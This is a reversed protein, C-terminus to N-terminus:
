DLTLLREAVDDGDVTILARWSPWSAAVGVTATPFRVTIEDDDLDADPDLDQRRGSARDLVYQAASAAGDELQYALRVSDRGDPSTVTMSWTVSRADSLDGEWRIDYAVVVDTETRGAHVIQTM